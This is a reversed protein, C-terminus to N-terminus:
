VSFRATQGSRGLYNVDGPLYFTLKMTRLQSFFDSSLFDFIWALATFAAMLSQLHTHVRPLLACLARLMRRGATERVSSRILTSGPPTGRLSCTGKKLKSDSAQTTESISASM